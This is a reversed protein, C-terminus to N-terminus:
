ENQELIEKIEKKAKKRDYDKKTAMTHGPPAIPIRPKIKKKLKERRLKNIKRKAKGM